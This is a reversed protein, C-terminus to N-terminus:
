KKGILSHFGEVPDLSYSSAVDKLIQVLGNTPNGLITPALDLYIPSDPDDLDSKVWSYFTWGTLDLPTGRRILTNISDYEGSDTIDIASGGSTLSLKFTNTTSNIVYYLQNSVLPSPLVATTTLRVQDTNVLGHATLTFTDTSPDVTFVGIVRSPMSNFAYTYPGFTVGIYLTFDRTAPIM